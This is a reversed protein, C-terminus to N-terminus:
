RAARLSMKLCQNLVRRAQRDTQRGAQRNSRNSKAARWALLQQKGHGPENASSQETHKQLLALIVSLSLAAPTPTPLQANPGALSAMRVKRDKHSMQIRRIFLLFSASNHTPTHPLTHSHTHAQTHKKQTNQIEKLVTIACVRDCVCESQRNKLKASEDALSLSHSASLTLSLSLFCVFAITGRECHMGRQRWSILLLCLPGVGQGCLQHANTKSDLEAAFHFTLSHSASHFPNPNRPEIQLAPLTM